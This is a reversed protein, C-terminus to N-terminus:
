VKYKAVATAISQNIRLLHQVSSASSQAAHSNEESMRAISEVQRSLASSTSAQERISNTIEDVAGAVARSGDQIERIADGASVANRQGKGVEEVASNMSGVAERAASQMTEILTNIQQTSNATREALKRVEDAVVAFGRGQEGARAAEIAANLALLNTQDAIERIIKRVLREQDDQDLIQFSQPLRAERWHRRLMRHPLRTPARTM